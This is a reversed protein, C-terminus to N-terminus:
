VKPRLAAALFALQEYSATGTVVTTVGARERVLSNQVKDTRLVRQWQVGGVDQTGDPRGRNTQARLWDAPADKGQEVAAYVPAGSGDDILYGVHWTLVRETAVTTRVSTPRWTPPLGVPVSPVFDVRSAAVRAGAEVDVPPQTVGNVRPVLLLVACVIALVVALSIVMSAVTARRRPQPPLPQSRPQPPEVPPGVPQGGGGPATPAGAGAAGERVLDDPAQETSSM